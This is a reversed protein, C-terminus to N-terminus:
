IRTVLEARCRARYSQTRAGVSHTEVGGGTGTDDKATANGPSGGADTTDEDIGVALGSEGIGVAVVGDGVEAGVGVGNSWRENTVGEL